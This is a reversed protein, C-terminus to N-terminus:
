DWLREGLAIAEIDVGDSGAARLLGPRIKLSGAQADGCGLGHDPFGPQDGGVARWLAAAPALRDSQIRSSALRARQGGNENQVFLWAALRGPNKARKGVGM